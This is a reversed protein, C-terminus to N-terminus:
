PTCVVGVCQRPDGNGSAHNDGGDIVGDVANIGLAANDNATNGRVVTGPADVRIGDAGTPDPPDFARNPLAGSANNFLLSTRSTAEGILIVPNGHDSGTGENARVV